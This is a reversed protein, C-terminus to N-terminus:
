FVVEVDDVERNTILNTIDHHQQVTDDVFAEVSTEQYLTKCLM